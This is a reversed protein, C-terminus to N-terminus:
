TKESFTLPNSFDYNEPVDYFWHTVGFKPKLQHRKSFPMVAIAIVNKIDKYGSMNPYYQLLDLYKDLKDSLEERYNKAQEYVANTRDKKLEFIYLTNDKVSLVDIRKNLEELLFEAAVFKFGEFAKEGGIMGRCFAAQVDDERYTDTPNNREEFEFEDLHTYRYDINTTSAENKLGRMPKEPLLSIIKIKGDGKPRLYYEQNLKYTKLESAAKASPYIQELVVM